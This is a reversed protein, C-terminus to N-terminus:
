KAKRPACMRIQWASSQLVPLHVTQINMLTLVSLTLSSAIKIKRLIWTAYSRQCLAYNESLLMIKAYNRFFILVALLMILKKKSCLRGFGVEVPVDEDNELSMADAIAWANLLERGVIMGAIRSFEAGTDLAGETTADLTQEMGAITTAPENAAEEPVNVNGENTDVNGDMDAAVPEFEARGTSDGNVAM